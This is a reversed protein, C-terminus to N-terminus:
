CALFFAMVCNEIFTDWNKEIQEREKYDAYLADKQSDPVSHYETWEEPTMFKKRPYSLGLEVTYYVHDSIPHEHRELNPSLAVCGSLLLVPAIRIM